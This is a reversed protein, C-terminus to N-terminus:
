REGAPYLRALYRCGIIQGASDRVEGGPFFIDPRHLAGAMVRSVVYATDPRPEPLGEVVSSYTVTALPISGTATELPPEDTVLETIRAVSGSPAFAAVERGDTGLVVVPHPTLNTIAIM